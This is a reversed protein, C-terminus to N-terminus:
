NKATSTAKVVFGYRTQPVTGGVLPISPTTGSNRRKQKSSAGLKKRKLARRTKTKSSTGFM